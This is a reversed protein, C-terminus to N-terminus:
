KSEKRRLKRAKLFEGVGYGCGPRWGCAAAREAKRQGSTSVKASM